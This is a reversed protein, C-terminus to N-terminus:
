WKVAYWLKIIGEKIMNFNSIAWDLLIIPVIVKMPLFYGISGFLMSIANNLSDLSFLSTDISISPLLNIFFKAINMLLDILGEIIM